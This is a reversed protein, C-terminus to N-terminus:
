TVSTCNSRSTVPRHNWDMTLSPDRKDGTLRGIWESSAQVGDTGLASARVRLVSGALSRHDNPAAKQAAVSTMPLRGEQHEQLWRYAAIVNQPATTMDVERQGSFVTFSDLWCNVGSARWSDIDSLEEISRLPKAYTQNGSAATRTEPSHLHSFPGESGQKARLQSLLQSAMDARLGRALLFAGILQDSAANVDIRGSESSVTIDVSYADFSWNSHGNFTLEHQTQIDSLAQIAHTLGADAAAQARVLALERHALIAGTRAVYAATVAIGSLFM